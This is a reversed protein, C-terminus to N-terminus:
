RRPRSRPRLRRRCLPALQSFRRPWTAAPPAPCSPGRMSLKASSTVALLSPRRRCRSRASSASRGSSPSTSPSSSILTSRRSSSSSSTSASSSPPVLSRSACPTASRYWRRRRRPAPTSPMPRGSAARLAVCRYERAQSDEKSTEVLARQCGIWVLLPAMILLHLYHHILVFQPVVLMGALLGYAAMLADSNVQAIGAVTPRHAISRSPRSHASQATREPPAVRTRM